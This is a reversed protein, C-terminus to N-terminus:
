WCKRTRGCERTREVGEGGCRKCWRLVDGRKVSPDPLRPRTLTAVIVMVMVMESREGAPTARSSPKEKGGKERSGVGKEGFRLLLLLCVCHSNQGTSQIDFLFNVCAGACLPVKNRKTTDCRRDIVLCTTRCKVEEERGRSLLNLSESSSTACLPARVSPAFGNRTLLNASSSQSTTTRAHHLIEKVVHNRTMSTTKVWCSISFRAPGRHAM